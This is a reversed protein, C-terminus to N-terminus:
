RAYGILTEKSSVNFIPIQISYTLSVKVDKRDDYVTQDEIQLKYGYSEAKQYCEQIIKDSYYSSEIRDIVLAHFRGANEIKMGCVIIMSVSFIMVVWIFFSTLHSFISKM